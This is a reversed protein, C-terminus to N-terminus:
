FLDAFESFQPHVLNHHISNNSANSNSVSSNSIQGTVYSNNKNNNNNNNNNNNSGTTSGNLFPSYNSVPKSRQFNQIGCSLYNVMIRDFSQEDNAILKNQYDIILSVNKDNHFNPSDPLNNFNKLIRHKNAINGRSDDSKVTATSTQNDGLIIQMLISRNDPHIDICESKIFEYDDNTLSQNLKLDISFKNPLDGYHNLKSFLNSSLLSNSNHYITIRPQESTNQIKNNISINSSNSNAAAVAATAGSSFSSVKTARSSSTSLYSSSRIISQGIRQIYSSFM